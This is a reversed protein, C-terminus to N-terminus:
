WIRVREEPPLYLEHEETVGFAEYWIDLNRVVGNVRYMGPSHPGTALQARLADDRFLTRWVQAWALLFRQDGTFGDIVPPEGDPYNEAAYNRYAEYAMQMGGLDGINEGLAVRGNVCEDPFPCFGNYQEVLRDSREVFRENTEETWWDRIRGEADFRRGNDDFGHGIEHGIVAGIAGYNMAPDANMDFFPAQLIGAPFTIQNMLPSYSANVIQPPWGWLRRDVPDPFRRLQEAWAFEGLRVRNGFYDDARIELGDYENWIEPYGIRPEFTSLKTLAEERTEDDMWELRELRGRFGVILNEILEDMQRSAEPPYHREIYVQGVPHGLAGNVLQVGRLERERQEETGSLTRGFFDFSAQDFVQPLWSARGSIFHFTMWSQLTEVDTQAFLAGADTIASPQAVIIEGETPLDRAELAQRLGLEPALAFFEETSMRNNTRTVDRSDERTWHVEALATELALIAEARAEGNDMGALEFVRAIYDKYAERYEPFRGTDLLYYDRSPLGLGSQGSRMIYRTPDEPDASIFVGYPAQFERQAMLATADEFSSVAAIQDLWPRAPELGRAEITEADMWSAFLDGIMQENSGPAGGRESADLIIDRVQQEVELSLMDFVGYRARDSPIETEQAWVGNAFAFFDDGPAVSTDMGTTDFGFTGFRPAAASETVAEETAAVDEIGNEPETTTADCAMLIALCSGALLIQRM